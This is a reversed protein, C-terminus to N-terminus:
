RLHRWVEAHAFGKSSWRFILDDQWPFIFDSCLHPNPDDSSKFQGRGKCDDSKGFKLFDNEANDWFINVTFSTYLIQFWVSRFEFGLEMVVLNNQLFSM